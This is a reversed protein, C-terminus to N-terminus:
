GSGRKRRTRLLVLIRDSEFGQSPLFRYLRQFERDDAIDARGRDASIRISEFLEVAGVHVHDAAEDGPPHGVRVRHARARYGNARTGALDPWPKRLHTGAAAPQRPWCTSSLRLRGVRQHPGM